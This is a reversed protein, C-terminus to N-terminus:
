RFGGGARNSDLAELLKSLRFIRDGIIKADAAKMSIEIKRIKSKINLTVNQGDRIVSFGAYDGAKEEGLLVRSLPKMIKSDITISQFTPGANDTYTISFYLRLESIREGLFGDTKLEIKGHDHNWIGHDGEVSLSPNWDINRGAQGFGCSTFCCWVFIMYKYAHM